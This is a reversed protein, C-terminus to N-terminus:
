NKVMKLSQDGYSSNEVNCLHIYYLGPPLTSVDVEKVQEERAMYEVAMVQGTVSIIQINTDETLPKPLELLFFGDNPNPIIKGYPDADEPSRADLAFTVRIRLISSTATEGQSSRAEARFGQYGMDDSEWTYQWVSPAVQNGFGLFTEGDDGYFLVEEISESAGDVRAQLTIEGGLRFTQYIRPSVLEVSFPGLQYAGLDPASGFYALGVDVGGDILDSSANLKMFSIDPLSGDTQRPWRLQATDLSIFDNDSLTYAPNSETYYRDGTQV